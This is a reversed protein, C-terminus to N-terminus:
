SNMLIVLMENDSINWHMDKFNQSLDKFTQSFTKSIQPDKLTHGRCKTVLTRVVVGCLCSYKVCQEEIFMTENSLKGDMGFNILKFM